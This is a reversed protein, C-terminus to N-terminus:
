EEKAGISGVRGAHVLTMSAREVMRELSTRTEANLTPDRVIAQKITRIREAADAMALDSQQTFEPDCLVREAPLAVARLKLWNLFARYEDDKEVKIELYKM